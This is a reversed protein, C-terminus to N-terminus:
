SLPLLPRGALAQLLATVFAAFIAGAALTLLSREAADDRSSRITRLLLVILPLLQLAHLGIFHPIRLDGHTLSWNTLLMGAAGDTAGVTHAGARFPHMGARVGALQAPLPQVMVWGITAGIINLVLGFRLAMAMTRDRVATRAHLVLLVMSLVWVVAIAVGMTAFVMSDSPTDINFHSQRGRAAQLSVLLIEAVILWGITSGTLRLLRSAPVDCAMRALAALFVAGSLGFKAPKLWVPVALVERPDVLLGILTSGFLVLSVATTLVLTPSHEQLDRLAKRFTTM